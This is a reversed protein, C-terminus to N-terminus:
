STQSVSCRENRLKTIEQKWIVTLQEYLECLRPYSINENVLFGYMEQQKDTVKLNKMKRDYVNVWFDCSIKIQAAQGFACDSYRQADLVDLDIKDLCGPFHLSLFEMGRHVCELMDQDTRM